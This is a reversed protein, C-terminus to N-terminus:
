TELVEGDAGVRVVSERDLYCWAIDVHDREDAALVDVEGVEVDAVGIFAIAVITHQSKVVAAVDVDGVAAEETATCFADLETLAVVECHSVRLDEMARVVDHVDITTAVALEEVAREILVLLVFLDVYILAALLDEEVVAYECLVVTYEEVDYRLIHYEATADDLVIAIYAISKLM